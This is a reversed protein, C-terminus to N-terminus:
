NPNEPKPGFDQHRIIGATDQKQQDAPDLTMTESQSPAIATPAIPVASIVKGGTQNKIANVQSQSISPPAAPGAPSSHAPPNYSATPSGSPAGASGSGGGFLALGVMLILGMVGTEIVYRFRTDTRHLQKTASVLQPIMGGAMGSANLNAGM